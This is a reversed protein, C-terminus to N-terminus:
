NHAEITQFIDGFWLLTSDRYYCQENHGTQLLAEPLLLQGTQHIYQPFQVDDTVDSSPISVKLKM